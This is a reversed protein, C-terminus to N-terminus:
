PGDGHAVKAFEDNVEKLKLFLERAQPHKIHEALQIITTVNVHLMGAAQEFATLSDVFRHRVDWYPAPPEKKRPM